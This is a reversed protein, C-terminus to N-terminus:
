VGSLRQSILVDKDRGLTVDEEPAACHRYARERWIMCLCPGGGEESNDKNVKTYGHRPCGGSLCLWSEFM